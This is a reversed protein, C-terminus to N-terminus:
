GDEVQLEEVRQPQAFRGWAARISTSPTVAWGANLRPLVHTGDPTYSEWDARLGAEIVFDPRIAVRDAVYAAADNGSPRLTVARDVVNPLGGHFVAFQQLADAVFDYDAHVHEVRFGAKIKQRDTLNFTTDNRLAAFRFSRQESLAGHENQEVFVGQRQDSISGASIVNQSFLRPTLASRANLWLYQDASRSHAQIDSDNLRLRDHSVLVNASVITADSLRWQVKGFLDYYSPDLGTKQNVIRLVEHLYGPRFSFLWQGRGDRFSGASLVRSNLMSVGVETRREDPTLSAIDIVGSLRGGYEAPFGGSLVDVSGMVEADLMSFASFLDKVHFPQYIQVGDLLVEVEDQAGGRMNFNASVDNTASGPIRNIARYIDDSFHPMARVDQRSLFQRQEPQSGLMGFHSPTVIIQDVAVPMAASATKAANGQRPAEDHVIVLTDRPGPVAHLRHQRLLEDLIARPESSRPEERVTLEPQIVESSYILHLGRRELDHLADVLPRGAYRAASAPTTVLLALLALATKM